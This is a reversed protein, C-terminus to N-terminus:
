KALTPHYHNDMMLGLLSRGDFRYEALKSSDIMDIITPAVDVVRATDIHLGAGIGPGAFVMPVMMDGAGVGGHGGLYDAEFDVDAAAFIVMDGARRSDFLEVIQVPLDPYGTGATRELWLAGAYFEGDLLQALGPEEDYGLPDVGDIVGYSYQKEDLIPWCQTSDNEVQYRRILVRGKAGQVMVGDGSRYAVLEIGPKSVLLDAIPKIQEISASRSWDAGNKLYLHARRGGGNALVADCGRFYEARRHYSMRQDPGGTVVKLGVKGTLDAEGTVLKSDAGGTDLKIDSLCKVAKLGVGGADLKSGAGGTDFKSDSGGTVLELGSGDTAQKSNVEEKLVEALDVTNERPCWVMGHDSILVLYTSELLGSLELSRCIHGIQEDVNILSDHYRQSYPGNRHGIEDTAPFYCYIFAPWSGAQKALKSILKFRRATWRDVTEYWHFFWCVGSTAWNDIRRYTGRALPTQITTSYSDSLIEYLNPQHYDNDLNRYTEITNYNIYILLDRDFFKNGVIGHHGPVLGTALTTAIAYTISPVATIARNISCGRQTLYRDINPLQGSTLMDQYIQHNLGDILFLVVKKTPITTNPDILKTAGLEACGSIAAALLAILLIRNM